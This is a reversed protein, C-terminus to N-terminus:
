LLASDSGSRGRLRCMRLWIEEALAESLGPQTKEAQLFLKGLTSVTEKTEYTKARHHVRRFCHLIVDNIHDIKQIGSDYDMEEDDYMTLSTTDVRSPDNHHHHQYQQKHIIATENEINDMEEDNVYGDSPTLPENENETENENEDYDDYDEDDTEPSTLDTNSSGFYTNPSIDEPSTSNDSILAGSNVMETIYSDKELLEKYINEINSKYENTNFPYKRKRNNPNSLPSSNALHKAQRPLTKTFNWRFSAESKTYLKKDIDYRPKKANPKNLKMWEDKEQILPVLNQYRRVQRIFRTKLLLSASPRKSPNKLLCFRIFEKLGDSYRSGTLVPPPNKPIEFLIKMPEEHSHPPTGKLLEIATIGLSWIDVKEDYGRKRTIIEPAMWFPTGVFTDKRVQTATIQGSVGFDALKVQGDSTLLINAAKIDRHIKRESHLYELGKLTEKIVFGVVDESLSRHCKLLDACSGGGCYEMVIWMNVDKVYAQYYNTIHDSRLQSLFSIEQVLVDIEDDTEELNVVKIAVVKSTKKENAKYVDGFNGRGVCELVDYLELPDTVGDM